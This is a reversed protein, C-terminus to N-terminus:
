RPRVALTHLGGEVSYTVRLGNRDAIEKVMSLGLGASTSSPDGKAFRDFLTSPPVSLAQGSNRVLIEQESITVDLTGGQLNHQVANRLLNAVLLQALVPHLQISCHSGSVHCRIGRQEL